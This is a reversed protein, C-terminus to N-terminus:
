VVLLRHETHLILPVPAFDFYDDFLYEVKTLLGGEHVFDYIIELPDNIM